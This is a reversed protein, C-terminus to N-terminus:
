GMEYFDIILGNGIADRGNVLGFHTMTSGTYEIGGIASWSNLTSLSYGQGSSIFSITFGNSKNDIIIESEARINSYPTPSVASSLGMMGYPADTQGWRNVIGTSSYGIVSTVDIEVLYSSFKLNRLKVKYKKNPKFINSVLLNNKNELHWKTIDGANTYTTINGVRLSNATLKTGYNNSAGALEKAMIVNTPQGIGANFFGNIRFVDATLTEAITIEGTSLNVATPTYVTNANYTYSLIFKDGNPAPNFQSM